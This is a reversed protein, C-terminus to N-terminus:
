PTPMNRRTRWRGDPAPELIGVLQGDPDLAAIEAAEVDRRAITQGNRIRAVEDSTLQIQPLGEVARLPSEVYRTWGDVTLKDLEISSEICFQGIATRRLATMVAATGLREALDRGLSRIYTGAGCEVELILEPYQYSQVAIRHIEVPRPQLEVPRGQRALRYAPRGQIKLASFAPPRQLIRGVFHRVATETQELTPQTADPLEVVEGEIDETPSQRGLLFAGVYQKRMRQVYEILRTAPGICVVLVGSALPDLTGAHGAKLPRTLREVCNVVQRSTMGTPKNLPILGGQRSLNLSEIPSM